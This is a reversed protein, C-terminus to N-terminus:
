HGLSRGRLRGITCPQQNRRVMYNAALILEFLMEQECDIFKADWEPVIEALAASRLPQFILNSARTLSAHASPPPSSRMAFHPTPLLATLAPTM